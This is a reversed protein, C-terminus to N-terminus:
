RTAVSRMYRYAFKRQLDSTSSPPSVTKGSALPLTLATGQHSSSDSHPFLPNDIFGFIPSANSKQLMFGSALGSGDLKCPPQGTIFPLLHDDVFHIRKWSYSNYVM